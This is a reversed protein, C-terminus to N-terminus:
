WYADELVKEKTDAEGIVQDCAGATLLERSNQKFEKM